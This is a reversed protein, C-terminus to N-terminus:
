FFRASMAYDYHQKEHRYIPRFHVNLVSKFILINFTNVISPCSPCLSM